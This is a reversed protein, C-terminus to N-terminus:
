QETESFQISQFKDNLPNFTITVFVGFEKDEKKLILKFKETATNTSITTRGLHLYDVVSAEYKKHAEHVALNGWKAYAPDAYIMGLTIVSILLLVM